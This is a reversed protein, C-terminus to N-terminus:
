SESGGAQYSEILDTLNTVRFSGIFGPQTKVLRDYTERHVCLIFRHAARTAAVFAIRREEQFAAENSWWVASRCRNPQPKPVYLATTHHTEGKVAHVTQITMDPVAVRSRPMVYDTRQETKTKNPPRRPSKSIRLAQLRVHKRVEADILDRMRCGWDFLSEGSVDKDAQILLEVVKKKGQYPDIGFEDFDSDSVVDAGLLPRAFAALGCACAQLVFM